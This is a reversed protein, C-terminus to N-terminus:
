AFFHIKQEASQLLQSRLINRITVSESYPQILPKLDDISVPNLEGKVFGFGIYHDQDILVVSKEGADRGQGIIAYSKAGSKLSKVAELVRSNYTKENTTAFCETENQSCRECFSGLGCMRACLKFESVVQSVANKAETLQSYTQWAGNAAPVRNIGLRYFGSMDEYLYVGYSKPPSKQAQNFRPWFKRIESDELLLAILENGTIRYSVDHIQRKFSISKASHDTGTFHSKVRQKINAAKGVYIIKGKKDKFYYVGPSEPLNEFQNKPLHAPLITEGSGRKLTDEIVKTSDLQLLKEFLTVTAKVDGMARHVDTHEIGLQNCLKNLSYSPMGPLLKRSLRVTCLKKRAFSSGLREFENRIFSYDFHVHHAVFIQGRTLEDIKPMLEEFTPANAVMQNSIGTLATIYAPIPRDPKVLSQFWEISKQGDHICIAIETICNAASYSGTTEIDVIAYM